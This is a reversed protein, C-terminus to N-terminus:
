MNIAPNKLNKNPSTDDSFSLKRNTSIHNSLLEDEENEINVTNKFKSNAETATDKRM